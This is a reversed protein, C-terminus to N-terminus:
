SGAFPTGFLGVALEGWILAFILLVLTLLAYRKNKNQVNGLGLDIGLGLVLLIFGGIVFDSSTWPFRFILPILLLFLPYFIRKTM